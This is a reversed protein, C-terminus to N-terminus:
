SNRALNRAFRSQGMTTFWVVSAATLLILSWIPHATLNTSAGSVPLHTALHPTSQQVTITAAYCLLATVPGTLRGLFATAAAAIAAFFTVNCSIDWWRADAPLRLHAIWPVIAPTLVALVALAGARLRLRLPGPMEWSALSPRLLAPLLAGLLVPVAEWVPTFRPTKTPDIRLEFVTAGAALVAAISAATLVLCSITHRATLYLKWARM